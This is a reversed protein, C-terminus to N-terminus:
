KQLKDNSHVGKVRISTMGETANGTKFIFDAQIKEPKLLKLNFPLPVPETFIWGIRVL